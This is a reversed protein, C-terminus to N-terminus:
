KAASWTAGSHIDAILPVRLKVKVNEMSDRLLEIGEQARNEPVELIIEDHVTLLVRWTDLNWYRQIRRHARVMAMKNVEAASGQIQHNVAQREAYSRLKADAWPLNIDPLRRRRGIIDEVYPTRMSRCRNVVDTSYKRIEPYTAHFGEYIREAVAAKYGGSEVLRTPGGGFSLLFNATKGDQREAKSVLNIAKSYLGSATMTHPDIGDVFAQVLKSRKVYPGAYHALFRLEVQEYDGVILVMGPGAMFMSRIQAGPDYDENQRPIQMLNPRTCSLRGTVTGNQKFDARVRGDDAIWPMLGTTYTGKLKSLDAHRMLMPVIPHKKVIAKLAKESVSQSGKPTAVKCPLELDGYLVKAKQQTSTILFKRGAAAYIDLELRELRLTLSTNLGNLRDKDLLVGRQKAWILVETVDSELRLVDLLSTKGELKSLIRQYLLHTLKADLGAYLAVDWFPFKDMPTGEKALKKYSYGLYHQVLDGLAYSNLNENLVHVLSITDLFPGPPIEGWYKALSLVDFKINQNIKLKDSFFLPRLAELVMSRRLQDPGDPHGMAICDVRGPGALGLWLVQNTREDLAPIDKTRAGARSDRTGVTECDFVFFDFATYALVLDVLQEKTTVVAPHYSSSM